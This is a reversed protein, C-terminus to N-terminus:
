KQKTTNIIVTTKTSNFCRSRKVKLNYSHNEIKNTNDFVRM